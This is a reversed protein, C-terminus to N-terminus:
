IDLLHVILFSWTEININGVNVIVSLKLSSTKLKLCAYKDNNVDLMAFKEEATPVHAGATEFEVYNKLIDYTKELFEAFNLKGDGDQDM